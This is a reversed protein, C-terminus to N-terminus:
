RAKGEAIQSLAADVDLLYANDQTLVLLARSQDVGIMTLLEEEDNPFPLSLTGSSGDAFLLGATETDSLVFLFGTGPAEQVLARYRTREDVRLKESFYRLTPTEEDCSLSIPEVRGGSRQFFLRLNDAGRREAHLIKGRSRM